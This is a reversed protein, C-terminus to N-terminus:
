IPNLGVLFLQLLQGVVMLNYISLMERRSQLFRVGVNMQMSKIEWPPNPLLQETNLALHHTVECLHLM